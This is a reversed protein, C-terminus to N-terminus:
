GHNLERRLQRLVRTLRVRVAGPSLGLHTAIEVSTLGVGYRLGLLERGEPSLRGLARSLDAFEDTDLSADEDAPPSARAEAESRRRQRRMLADRKMQASRSCGRVCGTRTASTASIGGHARGRRRFSM